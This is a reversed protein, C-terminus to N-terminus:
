LIEFTMSSTASTSTTNQIIFKTWDVDVAVDQTFVDNTAQSTITCVLNLTGDDKVATITFVNGSSALVGKIRVFKAPPIDAYTKTNIAAAPLSISYKRNNVSFQSPISVIM